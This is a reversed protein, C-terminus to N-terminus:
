LDDEGQIFHPAVMDIYYCWVKGMDVVVLQFYVNCVYKILYIKEFFSSVEMYM